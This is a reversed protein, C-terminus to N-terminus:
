VGLKLGLQDARDLAQADYGLDRLTQAFETSFGHTTYIKKPAVRRALELLELYDAHDSLPFAEDAKFRYKCNADLAWGSVIAVAVPKGALSKIENLRHPPWIVIGTAGPTDKLKTYPPFQHQYREYIRTCKWTEEHLLVPASQAALLKLLEQSKGLSYALLVPLKGLALNRQCFDLIDAAIKRRDPFVYEPRGFTTEMILTDAPRVSCAESAESPQLKFDGTYLLTSGNSELHLMASGIIHGAPLLTVRYARPGQCFDRPVGWELVHETRQGKLRHHMLDATPATLIVEHHSGLHDSHSHSIFVRDSAPRRSRADLWLGLEPLHICGDDVRTLIM